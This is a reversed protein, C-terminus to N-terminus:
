LHTQAIARNISALLQDQLAEAERLHTEAYATHTFLATELAEASIYGLSYLIRAVAVIEITAVAEIRERMLATHAEALTEFLYVNQEEGAVLRLVLDSIRAFASVGAPDKSTAAVSVSAGAARWGNKGRVLSIDVHSYAQLAYRMKSKESRVSTARARVLGFERTYLAFTKDAEGSERAGVVIAETQYKQYM